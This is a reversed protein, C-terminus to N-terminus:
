VAVALGKPARKVKAQLRMKQMVEPSCWESLSKPPPAAIRFDLAVRRQWSDPVLL